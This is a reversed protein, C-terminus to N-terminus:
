PKVKPAVSARLKACIDALDSAGARADYLWLKVIEVVDEDLLQAVDGLAKASKRTTPLAFFKAGTTKIDGAGQEQWYSAIEFGDKVEIHRPTVHIWIGRKDGNMGKGDSHRIKVEIINGEKGNRYRYHPESDGYLEFHKM